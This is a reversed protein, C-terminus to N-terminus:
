IAQLEGSILNRPNHDRMIKRQRANSVHTYIETTVMSAHGLLQQVCRIDVGEELLYTAFTHRFMHPTIVKSLNAQLSYKALMERIGKDSLRGYNKNLFLYPM